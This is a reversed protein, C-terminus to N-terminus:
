TKLQLTSVGWNTWHKQAVAGNCKYVDVIVKWAESFVSVLSGKHDTEGLLIVLVLGGSGMTINCCSCKTEERGKDNIVRLRM